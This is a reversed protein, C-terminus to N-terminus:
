QKIFERAEKLARKEFEIFELLGVDLARKERSSKEHEEVRDTKKEEELLKFLRKEFEKSKDEILATLNEKWNSHLAYFRRPKGSPNREDFRTIIVNYKILEDINYRFKMMVANSKHRFIETFRIQCVENHHCTCYFRGKKPNDYRGCCSEKVKEANKLVAIVRAFMEVDLRM